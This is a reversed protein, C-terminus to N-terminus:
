LSKMAQLFATIGLISVGIVVSFKPGIVMDEESVTGSIRKSAMKLFHDFIAQIVKVARKPFVICIIGLCYAILIGM